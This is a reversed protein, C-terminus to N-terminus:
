LLHNLFEEEEEEKDEINGLNSYKDGLFESLKPADDVTNDQIFKETEEERRQQNIKKQKAMGMTIWIIYILIALSILVIMFYFIFGFNVLNGFRIEFEVESGPFDEGVARAVFTVRRKHHDDDLFKEADLIKIRYGKSNIKQICLNEKGKEESDQISIIFTDGNYTELDVVRNGYTSYGVPDQQGRRYLIGSLRKVDDVVKEDELKKKGLVYDGFAGNLMFYEKGIDMSSVSTKKMNPLRHHKARKTLVNKSEETIEVEFEEFLIGIGGGICKIREVEIKEDQDEKKLKPSMKRDKEKLIPSMKGCSLFYFPIKRKNQVHIMTQVSKMKFSLVAVTIKNKGPIMLSIAVKEKLAVIEFYCNSFLNQNGPIRWKFNVLEIPLDDEEVNVRWVKIKAGIKEQVGIIVSKGQATVKVQLTEFPMLIKKVLKVKSGEGAKKDLKTIFLIEVLDVSCLFSLIYSNETEILQRERCYKGYKKLEVTTWLKNWNKLLKISDEKYLMVVNGEANGYEMGEEIPFMNKENIDDIPKLIKIIGKMTESEKKALNIDFIDGKLDVIDSFPIEMDKVFETPLNPESKKFINVSQPEKVNLIFPYIKTKRQNKLEVNVSYLGENLGDTKFDTFPGRLTTLYSQNYFITSRDYVFSFLVGGFEQYLSAMAFGEINGELEIEFESHLKKSARLGSFGFYSLMYDRQSFKERVWLQFSEDSNSCRLAMIERVQGEKENLPVTIYTDYLSNQNIGYIVSNQKSFFFITSLTPCIKIDLEPEKKDSKVLESRFSIKDSIFIGLGSNVGSFDIVIMSPDMYHNNIILAKKETGAAFYTEGKKFYPSGNEIPNLISSHSLEFKDPSIEFQNLIFANRPYEGKETSIIKGKDRSYSCISYLFSGFSQIDCLAEYPSIVVEGQKKYDKSFKLLSMEKNNEKTKEDIKKKSIMVFLYNGDGEGGELNGNELSFEYVTKCTNKKQMWFNVFEQVKKKGKLVEGFIKNNSQPESGKIPWIWDGIIIHCELIRVQNKSNMYVMSLKKIDVDRIFKGDQFIQHHADGFGSMLFLEKIDVDDISDGVGVTEHTGCQIKRQPIDLNDINVEIEALNGDTIRSNFGLDFWGKNYVFIEKFIDLDLYDHSNEMKNVTTELTFQIKKEADNAFSKSSASLMVKKSKSLVPSSIVIDHKERKMLVTKGDDTIAYYYTTNLFLVSDFQYQTLQVFNSRKSDISVKLYGQFQLGKENQKYISSLIKAHNEAIFIYGIKLNKMYDENINLNTSKCNLNDKDPNWSARNVKCVELYQNTFFFLSSFANARKENLNRRFEWKRTKKQDFELRKSSDCNINGQSLECPILFGEDIQQFIIWNNDIFRVRRVGRPFARDLKAVLNMQNNKSIYEIWIMKGFEKDNSLFSLCRYNVVSESTDSTCRIKLNKFIKLDNGNYFNEFVKEDIKKINIKEFNKSESLYGYGLIHLDYVKRAENRKVCALWLTNIVGKIDFCKLDGLDFKNTNFLNGSTPNYIVIKFITKKNEECIGVMELDRHPLIVSCGDFEHNFGMFRDFYFLKMYPRPFAQPTIQSGNIFDSIKFGVVDKKSLMLEPPLQNILNLSKVMKTCAALLLTQKIRNMVISIKKGKM